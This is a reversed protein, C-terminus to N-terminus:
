VINKKIYHLELNLIAVVQVLAASYELLWTNNVICKVNSINWKNWLERPKIDQYNFIFYSRDMKGLCLITDKFKLHKVM